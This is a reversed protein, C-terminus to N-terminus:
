GFDDAHHYQKSKCKESDECERNAEARVLRHSCVAPKKIELHPLKLPKM